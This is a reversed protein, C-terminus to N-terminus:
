QRPDKGGLIGEGRAVTGREIAHHLTDSPRDPLLHPHEAPDGLLHDRRQVEPREVGVDAEEFSYHVLTGIGARHIMAALCPCLAAHDRREHREQLDRVLRRAQGIMQGVHAPEHRGLVPREQLPDFGHWGIGSVTIPENLPM